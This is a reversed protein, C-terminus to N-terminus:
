ELSGLYTVFEPENRLKALEEAKFGNKSRYVWAFNVNKASEILNDNKNKM